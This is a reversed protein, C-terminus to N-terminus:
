KMNIQLVYDQNYPSGFLEFVRDESFLSWNISNIPLNNTLFTMVFAVKGCCKISLQSNYIKPTKVKLYVVCACCSSNRQSEPIVPLKHSM